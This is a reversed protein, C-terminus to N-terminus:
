NHLLLELVQFDSQVLNQLKGVYDDIRHSKPYDSREDDDV